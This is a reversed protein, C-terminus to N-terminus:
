PVLVLRGRVGGAALREHARAAEEFPYTGAVRVTLEGRPAVGLLDALTPGDPQVLVLAVRIGREPEPQAPTIVAVFAGGDRVAGLAPGAINATDLLGEVGDPVVSRVAGAVDESRPVFETAGLRRVLDEDPAGAVAVVRLGRRAALQVAYGGVAGAAGTVALTGGEELALLDLAQTATLANLPVTAADVLSLGDPVRAVDTADLVVYEAQMGNFRGFWHYLGAVPDGPAFGSVEPGVADVTGAVDWGPVHRGPPLAAGFVGARAALDAPNVTAAAVRIRVQGPGPQPTPLDEIHLVDPGGTESFVVARM